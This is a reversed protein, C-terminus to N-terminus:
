FRWVSLLQVTSENQGKQGLKNKWYQYELGVYLNNAEYGLAKGLDMRLQPQALISSEYKKDGHKMDRGALFEAHGELSWSLGGAEFPLAWNFDIMYSSEEEHEKDKSSTTVHNYSTIDLNSFAFNPFDFSVRLGPLVWIKNIDTAMNIGAILGVDKIVGYSIENGTIAGLSFNSYAEMYSTIEGNEGNKVYSQDFFFFNDVYKSGSAHQFTLITTDENKKNFPNLLDGNSLHLETNSWIAAQSSIAFTTALLGVGLHTIWQKFQM